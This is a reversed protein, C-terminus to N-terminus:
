QEDTMTGDIKFKGNEKKIIFENSVSSESKGAPVLKIFYIEDMLGKRLGLKPRPQKKDVKLEKIKEILEKKGGNDKLFKTSFVDEILNIKKNTMISQYKEFLFEIEKEESSHTPLSFLLLFLMLQIRM